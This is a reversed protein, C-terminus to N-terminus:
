SSRNSRKRLIRAARHFSPAMSPRHNVGADRKLAREPHPLAHPVRPPRDKVAGAFDLVGLSHCERFRLECLNVTLDPADVGQQPRSM